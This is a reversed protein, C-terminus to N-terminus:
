LKPRAEAVIAPEKCLEALAKAGMGKAEALPRIAKETTVVLACVNSKSSLAYAMCQDVYPSLKLANEVQARSRLTDSGLTVVM